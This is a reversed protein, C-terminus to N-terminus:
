HKSILAGIIALWIRLHIAAAKASSCIVAAQRGQRYLESPSELQKEGEGLLVIDGAAVSFDEDLLAAPLLIKLERKPLVGAQSYARQSRELSKHGATFRLSVGKLVTATWGTDRRYLTVTKDFGVM